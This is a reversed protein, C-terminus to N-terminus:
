DHQPGTALWTQIGTTASDRQQPPVASADISFQAIRALHEDDLGLRDRCLRYEDLLTVGFLLPDDANISCRVGHALLTPLPHATLERVAGLKVNSTPCVDLTVRREALEAMLEPDTAAGIGHQIRDPHLLDLTHRVAHPGELEGAHPAALLGGARAVHFVNAYPDPPHGVEDNHLGIAVVGNPALRMALRAIALADRPSDWARDIAAIFRVCIGHRQAAEAFVDLVLEWCAQDHAFRDRYLTPWFSPELYVAGHAVHDACMEDALRAWDERDRLVTTAATYVASFAAFDQYDGLQPVEVDHKTALELLTSRRMGAELHLHLHAKPLRALDRM